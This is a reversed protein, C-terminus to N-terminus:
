AECSICKVESRLAEAVVGVLEFALGVWDDFRSPRRLLPGRIPRDLELLDDHRVTSSKRRDQFSQAQADASPLLDADDAPAAAM